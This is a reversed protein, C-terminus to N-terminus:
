RLRKELNNILYNAFKTTIFPHLKKNNETCNNNWEVILDFILDRLEEFTM